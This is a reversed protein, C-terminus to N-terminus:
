IHILSLHIIKPMNEKGTGSEGTILVTIDTPAVQVAVDLARNLAPTNGIIGFRNKVTQLNM